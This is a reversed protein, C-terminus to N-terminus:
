GKVRLESRTQRADCGDEWKGLVIMAIVNGVINSVARAEARVADLDCHGQGRRPDDV